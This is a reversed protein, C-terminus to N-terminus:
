KPATFPPTQFVMSAPRTQRGIKSECGTADIPARATGGEAVADTRRHM